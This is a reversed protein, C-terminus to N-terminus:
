CSCYLELSYTLKQQLNETIKKNKGNPKVINTIMETEGM